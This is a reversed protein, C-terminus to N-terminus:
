ASLTRPTAGKLAKGKRPAACRETGAAKKGNGRWGSSQSGPQKTKERGKQFGGALPIGARAGYSATGLVAPRGHQLNTPLGGTEKTRSEGLPAGCALPPRGTAHHVGPQNARAFGWLSGRMIFRGDSREQADFVLSPLNGPRGFASSKWGNGSVARTM